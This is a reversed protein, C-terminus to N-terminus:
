NIAASLIEKNYIALLREYKVLREPKAPAGSKLGWAHVSYALDAIFDDATEGSRHSVVAQWNNQYAMKVVNLTETLTGIQNLKILIANGSKENIAKQLRKSNTTTLDDTIVLAEKKNENLKEALKAFSGFDEEYFPDEISIIDYRDILELYYNLLEDASYKKGGIEYFGDKGEKASAEASALAKASLDAPVYFSTAACDLGIKFPYNNKEIVESLMSIAEENSEFPVSFGAEDGLSINQAGFKKELFKQLKRYFEKGMSLAIAFDSVQPIVQFEQIELKNKAHAGGNIVNFIPKTLKQQRNYTTPQLDIIYQYLEKGESKAKARAFALSLALILNGGLNKKNESGDLSILFNDFDEQNQYDPSLIEKKIQGFKEIAKEPELVYVEHVGKSKGSPVTAKVSFDDATFEAELTNEGRSDAIIKVNVDKVNM